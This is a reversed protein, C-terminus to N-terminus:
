VGRTGMKKQELKAKALTLASIEQVCREMTEYDGKEKALDYIFKKAIIKEEVEEILKAVSKTEVM